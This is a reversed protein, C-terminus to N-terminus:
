CFKMQKLLIEYTFECLVKIVLMAVVQHLMPFIV